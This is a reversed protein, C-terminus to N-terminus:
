SAEEVVDEDLSEGRLEATEGRALERLADDIKALLLAKVAAPKLGEVQDAVADPIARLRARVAVALDARDAREAEKEVLEGRRVQLKLELEERRCQDLRARELQPSLSAEDGGGRAAVERRIVWEVVASLDFLTAKGGRGPRAAPLDEEIWRSITRPTKKFLRALDQRTVLGL